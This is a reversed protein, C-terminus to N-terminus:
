QRDSPHHAGDDIERLSEDTVQDRGIPRKRRERDSSTKTATGTDSCSTGIDSSTAADCCAACADGTCGANGCDSCLCECAGSDSDAM